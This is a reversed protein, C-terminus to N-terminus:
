KLLLGSKEISRPTRSSASGPVPEEGTRIGDPLVPPLCSEEPLLALGGSLLFHSTHPVFYVPVFCRLVFCRLM